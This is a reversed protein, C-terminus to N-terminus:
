TKDSNDTYELASLIWTPGSICKSDNGFVLKKGYKQYRDLANQDAKSLAWALAKENIDKCM